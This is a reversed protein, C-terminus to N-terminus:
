VKRYKRTLRIIIKIIVFILLALIIIALPIIWFANFFFFYGYHPQNYYDNQMAIFYNLDKSTISSFNGHLTIEKNIISEENQKEPFDYIPETLVYSNTKENLAYFAYCYILKDDNNKFNFNLNIDTQNKVNDYNTSTVELNTISSSSLTFDYVDYSINVRSITKVDGEYAFCFTSTTFPPVIQEYQKEVNYDSFGCSYIDIDTLIIYNESDNDFDFKLTEDEYEFEGQLYEKESYELPPQNPAPSNAMLFPLLLPLIILLKRKM